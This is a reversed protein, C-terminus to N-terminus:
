AAEDDLLAAQRDRFSEGEFKIVYPSILDKYTRRLPFPDVKNEYIKAPAEQGDAFIAITRAVLLYYQDRERKSVPGVADNMIRNHVHRVYNEVKEKGEIGSDVTLVFTKLFGQLTDESIGFMHSRAVAVVISSVGFRTTDHDTTLYDEVFNLHQKAKEEAALFLAPTWAIKTETPYAYFGKVCAEKKRSIYGDGSIVMRDRLTRSRNGDILAAEEDTVDYCVFFRQPLGTFIVAWLRHQANKTKEDKGVCIPDASLYFKKAVMLNSFETVRADSIPRNSDNRELLEIARAPTITEVRMVEKM